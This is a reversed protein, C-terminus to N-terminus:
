RDIRHLQSCVAPAKCALSAWTSDPLLPAMPGPPNPERASANMAEIEDPHMRTRLAATLRPIVVSPSRWPIGAGQVTPIPIQRPSRACPAKAERDPIGVFHSRIAATLKSM